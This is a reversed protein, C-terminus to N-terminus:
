KEYLWIRLLSLLQDIDVPKSIYDSAGAQICRERDGAMAKATVAIIPLHRLRPHRRIRTIAEFGDMEPMMMDMLIIDVKGAEAISLAEAGDMATVVKMKHLELAKTLSFINRVDDDAVLVLKSSLVEDLAGLRNYSGGNTGGKEAGVVHLFLSVEDLVRQYSHATKVVISDAFQRLRAEEGKSINMGTFVIIPLNEFAPNNRMMELTDSEEKGAERSLIVGHVGEKQLLDTSRAITAAIEMNLNHTGLFFALAQAHRMNDEVIIVKRPSRSLLFDIKEFAQDMNDFAVSKSMFDVAGRKISESKVEFSSMIHVPINRTRPDKKLEDMVEWGSKVPLQIDLLIGMPLYQRAMRVATDGSVAVVGKYGKKRSFDLLEQAFFTDDEVILLIKDGPKLQERDDPIEEPAEPLTYIAGGGVLPVGVERAGGSSLGGPTVGLSGGYGDAGGRGAAGAAGGTMGNVGGAAGFAMGGLATAEAVADMKFQPITVTFEAGEDPNSTVDIDGGLLRSLERSISLGLGTGGYKRRTSGDAQQFAEFILQHKDVPIGIGSDKVVFELFNKQTASARIRLTVSGKQTFKFANSLLNKLIQEIRMKDTELQAPTGEDVLIHLELNKDRAIPGFLSRMDDVLETMPVLGHELQLKGSEIRSLDLIEDILQLLGHGSNQIVRAYETQEESLNRASNEALLRSLLLISNLPTRLEHSMNAMFESKYKTTLALEEAKKQIDLNRILILQNKEELTRSREELEQNTQMLEEQQVKLEEESVQLKEAQVELELNLSELESHQSQLEETQAQTEELLEQLKHRSEISHIATGINDGISDFFELDRDSYGELSGLEIVGKIKKEHYFPFAVVTRPTIDGSALRIIWEGLRIDNLVVRKGDRAVQGVLGEGLKVRGRTEGTVLAFGSNLMLTGTVPDMVYLAGVRSRTYEAVTAIIDTVLVEMDTEGVMEDSLRAIGTQLWEKDSLLGFSYELSKAMKNLSGALEGLNDKQDDSVRVQYKGDSIEDAIGGIITIRQAIDADKQQLQTYLAARELYDKHVRRYFFITILISLLAAIIILVPTYIAYNREKEIRQRLLSHEEDQMRQIIRRAEDMYGRGERLDAPNYINDERKQDIVQQLIKLRNAVVDRLERINEQQSGNDSTMVQIQDIDALARERAGTYPTLFASDSTLLYGRQGTEADKLVSLTSALQNIVSDTHDVWQSSDLLNHISSYSAVSSVILILLSLGFGIQLNRLLGPQNSRNM